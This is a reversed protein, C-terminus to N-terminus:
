LTHIIKKRIVHKVLHIKKSSAIYAHPQCKFAVVTVTNIFEHIFLIDLNLFVLM